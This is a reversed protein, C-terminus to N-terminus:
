VFAVETVKARRGLLRLAASAALGGAVYWGVTRPRTEACRESAPGLGALSPLMLASLGAGLGGLAGRRWPRRSEGVLLAYLLSNAMLDGVLALARLADGRPPRRGLREFSRKLGREGLLDLRPTRPSVRRTLENALVLSLSGTVGAVLAGMLRNM